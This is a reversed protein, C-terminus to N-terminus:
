STNRTTADPSQKPRGFQDHTDHYRWAEFAAQTKEPCHTVQPPPGVLKRTSSTPKLPDYIPETNHGTHQALPAKPQPAPTSQQLHELREPPMRGFWAPIINNNTTKWEQLSLRRNPTPPPPKAPPVPDYSGTAEQQAVNGSAMNPPSPLPPPAKSSSATATNYPDLGVNPLTRARSRPGILDRHDAVKHLVPPLISGPAAQPFPTPTPLPIATGDTPDSNGAPPGPPVIVNPAWMGPPPGPPADAGLHAPTHFPPTATYLNREALVREATHAAM